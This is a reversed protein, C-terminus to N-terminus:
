EGVLVEIGAESPRLEIVPLVLDFDKKRQVVRSVTFKSKELREINRLLSDIRSQLDYFRAKINSNEKELELIRVRQRVILEEPPVSSLNSARKASM